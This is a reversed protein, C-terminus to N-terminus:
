SVFRDAWAVARERPFLEEITYWDKVTKGFLPEEWQRFPMNEILRFLMAAADVLDDHGSYNPNYNGMQEMLETLQYFIKVRGERVMSGLSWSIKDFKSKREVKVRLAEIPLRIKRGYKEEVEKRVMEIVAGLHTQMGFEIGIRRPRYREALQILIRAIENGDKKLNLAEEIYCIGSQSVAGVVIATYDSYKQTTPAPDVAIYRNFTGPPLEHYTPQPPPFLMDERPTPDCMYQSSFMYEGMRRKLREFMKLTYFRYIPKGGSIAPRRYIHKYIKEKRLWTYFDEYHYPTGTVVEIGDPELIGQVYGYWDRTKQMQDQTQVTEQNILDDYFHRDYHRGVVTAGVGFVEIQNEQMSSTKDRKITLQDVNSRQWNKFNKGPPPVVDPFFALVKPMAFMRKIDTLESEVLNATTSFLALRINPDRLVLQVIKAKVFTTKLHRRPVILMCDEDKSLIDCMWRHFQPDVINKRGKKAKGLDLCDTAFFYLDTLCLYRYFLHSVMQKEDDTPNDLDKCVEKKIEALKAKQTTTHKYTTM